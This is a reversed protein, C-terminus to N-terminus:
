LANFIKGDQEYSEGLYVEHAEGNTMVASFRPLSGNPLSKSDIHVLERHCWDTKTIEKVELLENSATHVFLSPIEVGWALCFNIKFSKVTFKPSNSVCSFKCESPSKREVSSSQEESSDSPKFANVNFNRFWQFSKNLILYSLVALLILIILLIGLKGIVGLVSLLGSM